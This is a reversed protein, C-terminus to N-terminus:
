EDLLVKSVAFARYNVVSVSLARLLPNKIYFVEASKANEATFNKM